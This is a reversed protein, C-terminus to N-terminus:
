IELRRNIVKKVENCDYHTQAYEWAARKRRWVSESDLSKLVNFLSIADCNIHYCVSEPLEGFDGVNTVIITKGSCIAEYGKSATKAVGFRGNVKQLVLCVDISQYLKEFSESQLMGLVFVKVSTLKSIRSNVQKVDGFGTIYFEVSSVVECKDLMELADLLIDIGNELRIAGGFLIKVTGGVSTDVNNSVYQCGSVVLSNVEKYLHNLFVSSPVVVLDAFLSSLQMLCWGICERVPNVKSTPLWDSARLLSVDELDYVVKASCVVKCLWAFICTDLFNNYQVVRVIRHRKSIKFFAYMATFPRLFYGLYRVGLQGLAIVPVNYKKGILPPLWTWTSKIRPVIGPSVIVCRTGEAAMATALRAVRNSEAVNAPLM